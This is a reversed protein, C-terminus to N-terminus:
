ERNLKSKILASLDDLKDLLEDWFAWVYYVAVVIVYIAMSWASVKLSTRWTIPKHLWNWRSKKM